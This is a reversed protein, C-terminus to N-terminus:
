KVMNGKTDNKAAAYDMKRNMYKESLIAYEKDTLDLQQDAGEKMSLNLEDNTIM